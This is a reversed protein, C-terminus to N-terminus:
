TSEESEDQVTSPINRCGMNNCDNGTPNASDRLAVQGGSSEGVALIHKMDRPRDEAVKRPPKKTPFACRNFNSGDKVM